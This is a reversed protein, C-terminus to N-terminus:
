CPIMFRNPRGPEFLSDLADLVGRLTEGQDLHQDGPHHEDDAEDADRLEEGRGGHPDQRRVRPREHSLHGGLLDLGDAAQLILVDAGDAALRGALEKRQFGLDTSPRVKWITRSTVYM